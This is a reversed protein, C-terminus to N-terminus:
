AIERVLPALKPNQGYTEYFLEMRWLNVAERLMEPLNVDNPSLVEGIVDFVLDALASRM